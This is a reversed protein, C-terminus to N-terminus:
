ADAQDWGHLMRTAPVARIWTLTGDQKPSATFTFRDGVALSRSWRGANVTIRHYAVADDAAYRVEAPVVNRYNPKSECRAHYRHRPYGSASIHPTNM